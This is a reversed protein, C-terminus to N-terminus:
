TTVPVPRVDRLLFADSVPRRPALQDLRAMAEDVSPVHGAPVWWCVVFVDM